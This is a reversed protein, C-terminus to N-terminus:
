EAQFHVLFPGGQERTVLVELTLVHAYYNRRSDTLM